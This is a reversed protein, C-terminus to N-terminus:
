DFFDSVGLTDKNDIIYQIYTDNDRGMFDWGTDRTYYFKDFCVKLNDLLLEEAELNDGSWVLYYGSNDCPLVDPDDMKIEPSIGISMAINCISIDKSYCRYRGYDGTASHGEAEMILIKKM